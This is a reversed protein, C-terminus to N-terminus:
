PSARVEGRSETPTYRRLIDDLNTTPSHNQLTREQVAHLHQDMLETAQLVDGSQLADVIAHHEAISTDQSHDHGHVAIILACRLAVESVYKHLLRNSTLQALLIHFEVGLRDSVPYNRKTSAEEELAIHARLQKAMDPQWCQTLTAVVDKELCRRVHFTEVSEEPGPAAVTASKGQSTDVLGENRLRALAERIITRSVGFSSAISDEPLKTGPKLANEIIATRLALYVDDRRNGM